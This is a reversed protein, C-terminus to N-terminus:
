FKMRLGLSFTRGPDYQTFTANSFQFYTRQSARALNVIDFTLTPWGKRDLVEELDVSSSMDLQKYPDVFLAANTIGNQNATAVQSGDAYSHSFRVSYGYNQYYVTANNTKKPVGLAIFGNTGEGSAKQHTLTVNDSLGFGRIPLWKDLPQVWGLELGQIHLIGGANRARTLVVTAQTPGGRSNIAQQQTATLSDYTVGYSALASFPTTVNENVTFGNIRKDFYTASVYGERGTYWELGLDVNDSIYPKLSSNGVTGTDASPSSFNIGPRLANPDARTMTRSVSLRAVLDKTVNLALSGSPLTNNYSTDLYYVSDINPYKSGSLPLAANRPDSLSIFGGVTQDTHVYRAGINYRLQHEMPWLVGNAELYFGKTKELIYGASASTNSSGVDPATAVYYGYNSAQKFKNWDLTVFGDPGPHLYNTLATVPVLSGGYTLADTRGATYGTGFGPYLAAASGPANAGNCAPAGNPSPLFVSPNNGCVAAQWAGSNDKATIRREINDLAIGTKINFKDDGWTLNTRGGKTETHRYEQQLNVRGGAWGFNAPDYLDQNSTISPIGGNNSYTTTLGSGLVTIPMVTPSDRMFNSRTLNVQGDLKWKDGLKWEFGPNIGFLTTDETYPRFELSYQANAFTGGTAVCGNACDTRDVTMNLPIIAGNRGVWNMDARILSNKKKSATTDVYFHLDDNPRYEMSVVATYKDKTGSEDMTRGLRPIIANDILEITLGAIHALLLTQDIVTGPVLGNGAGTPVTAPITWNGGGTSNRNPLNDQAATLNPNTWGITEFGTTRVKANAWAFGGLIGFGNDFTESALVSGRDGAKHAVSNDVAQVNFATYKGKNDFPRATRMDVVGAAGGEVMEATPSKNVTLKKFLDTPLLDLDVERNTNQNDTRGTSAVAVPAGNLLVKTFSTGLGRIQINLGEGTIERSIQIGPVRNLSEAINSDPFKGLDEAFVSDQFGIANRKDRASTELSARYGTVQIKQMPAAGGTSDSAPAEQQAAPAAPVEEAYAQAILSAMATLGFLVNRGAQSRRALQKQQKKM